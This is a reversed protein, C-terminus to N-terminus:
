HILVLMACLLTNGITELICCNPSDPMPKITDGEYGDEESYNYKWGRDEIFFRVRALRMKEDM